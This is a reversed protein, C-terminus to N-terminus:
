EDYYVIMGGLEEFAEKFTDWGVAASSGTSPDSYMINNLEDFGYIVIAHEYAPWQVTEGTEYDLWEQRYEIGAEINTTYWAMVPNGSLVIEKIDDLTASTKSIAGTKFQEATERIPENFVGYSDALRPDGVFEKAPNAGYRVGNEDYYPFPGKPLAEVLEEMTVDVDYYNLLIYLATIECGTPYDPYQSYELVGALFTLGQSNDAEVLIKEVEEQMEAEPENLDKTEENDFFLIELEQKHKYIWSGAMVMAIVLFITFLRKYRIKRRKKKAM